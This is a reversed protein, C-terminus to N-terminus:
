SGFERVFCAPQPVSLVAEWVDPRAPAYHTTFVDRSNTGILFKAAERNRTAVRTACTSRGSQWPRDVEQLGAADWIVRTLKARSRAAYSDEPEAITPDSLGPFFYEGSMGPLRGRDGLQEAFRLARVTLEALPLWHKKGTKIAKFKLTWRLESDQVLADRRLTFLDVPRLGCNVSLVLAVRLLPQGALFSWLRDVETEHYPRAEVEKDPLGSPEPFRAIARMAVAHKLITRLPTWTTAITSPSLPKEADEPSALEMRQVFEDILIENASEIVALSPGEWVLGEPWAAPRTGWMWRNLAQRDKQHTGPKVGKRVVEWRQAVCDRYFQPLSTRAAYSGRLESPVLKPQYREARIASENWAAWADTAASALTHSEAPGGGADVPSVLVPESLRHLDPAAAEATGPLLRQLQSILTLIQSSDLPPAAPLTSRSSSEPLSEAPEFLRLSQPSAKM